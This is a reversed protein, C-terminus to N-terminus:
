LHARIGQRGGIRERLPLGVDSWLSSLDKEEMQLGGPKGDTVEPLFTYNSYVTSFDARSDMPGPTGDSIATTENDINSGLGRLVSIRTRSFKSEFVDEPIVEGGYKVVRWRLHLRLYDEVQSLDAIPHDLINDKVHQLLHITLPVQACSLTEEEVQRKCNSCSGESTSLRGGFSYVHGIYNHRDFHTSNEDKPGGLFFEITYSSGDMAYRDYVVNIIYDNWSETDGNSSQLGNPTNQHEIMSQILQGTAPYLNNIHAHLENKYEEEDFEGHKRVIDEALDALDDYQYNLDTWDRCAQSTWVKKEPDNNTRHFPELPDTEKDDAVNPTKLSAL